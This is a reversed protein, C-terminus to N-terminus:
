KVFPNYEDQLASNTAFNRCLSVNNIDWNKINQNFLKASYFM